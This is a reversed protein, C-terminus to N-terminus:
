ESKFAKARDFWQRAETSGGGQNPRLLATSRGHWQKSYGNITSGQHFITSRRYFATSEMGVEGVGKSKCSKNFFKM